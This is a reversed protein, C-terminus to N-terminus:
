ARKRKKREGDEAAKHSGRKRKGAKAGKKARRSKARGEEAEEQEREEKDEEEEESSSEQAGGKGKKQPAPRGPLPPEPLAALYFQAGELLELRDLRADASTPGAEDESSASEALYDGLGQEVAQAGGGSGDELAAATAGLLAERHEYHRAQLAEIKRRTAKGYFAPDVVTARSVPFAPAGAYVRLGNAGRGLRLASSAAGSRALSTELAHHVHEPSITQAHQAVAWEAVEHVVLRLVSDLLTALALQPEASCTMSNYQQRLRTRVLGPSVYVKHAVAVAKAGRGKKTAEQANKSM